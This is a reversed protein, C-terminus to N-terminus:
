GLELSRGGSVLPRHRGPRPPTQVDGFGAAGLLARVAAAQDHGHELLLWGGPHLQAPAGRSSRASTTWATPARWWRLSRSTACRRCTRTAPPSTPRTASSSTSAAGQSLAGALRRRPVRSGPRAAPRQSAGRALAERAPMSPTSRRTRAAQRCRWRSRAAAPASTSCPAAARRACAAAAARAGLRGANRHRPAADARAPRGGARPRYFEKSGVLYAVPEGDRPATCLRLWPLPSTATSCTMADHAILWARDAAAPRARAAAAAACRAPRHGGGRADGLAATSADDARRTRRM